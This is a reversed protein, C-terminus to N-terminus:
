RRWAKGKDVIMHGAILYWEIKNREIKRTQGNIVGDKIDAMLKKFIDRGAEDRIESAMKIVEEGGDDTFGILTDSVPSKRWYKALVVEDDKLWDEFASDLPAQAIREKYKPYKRNFTKRSMREFEFGFNSDSGDVTKIWPDLYVATPDTAATLFIDQDFSRESVYDTSILIYGIGGDVQHEAVKRYQATGKSITEIRNILAQMVKAGEYSAVGGAPRIKVGYRNKSMANIILDNHVRTNNITLIPLEDGTTGTRAQVVEEPWQWRNRPDGNAFKIDSRCREDETGQWDKCALYREYAERVITGEDTSTGEDEDSYDIPLVM